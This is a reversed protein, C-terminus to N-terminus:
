HPFRIVKDSGTASHNRYVGATCSRSWVLPRASYLAYPDKILDTMMANSLCLPANHSGAISRSPPSVVLRWHEKDTKVSVLLFLADYLLTYVSVTDVYVVQSKM